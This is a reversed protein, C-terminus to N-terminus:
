PELSYFFRAVKIRGGKVEYECAEEINMRQGAMPGAKMTVDSKMFCIFRDEHPFPGTVETAHVENNQVWEDSAKLIAEKGVTERAMGPMEFPEFSRCDDAYLEEVAQRYAQQNCLEVLRKGVQMTNM